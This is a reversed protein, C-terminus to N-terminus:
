RVRGFAEAMIAQVADQGIEAVLGAREADAQPVDVAEHLDYVCAECLVARAECREKFIMLATVPEATITSKRKTTTTGTMARGRQKRATGHDPLTANDTATRKESIPGSPSARALPSETQWTAWHVPQRKQGLLQGVQGFHSNPCFRL